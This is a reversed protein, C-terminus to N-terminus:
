GHKEKVLEENITMSVQLRELRDKLRMISTVIEEHERFFGSVCRAVALRFEQQSIGPNVLYPMPAVPYNFHGQVVKSTQTQIAM